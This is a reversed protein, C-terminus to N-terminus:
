PAPRPKSLARLEHLKAFLRALGVNERGDAATMDAVRTDAIAGGLGFFTDESRASSTDVGPRDTTVLPGTGAFAAVDEPSLVLRSWLTEADDLGLSGLEADIDPDDRLSAMTATSPLREVDSGNIVWNYGLPGNWISVNPFVSAVTRVVTRIEDVSARGVNLRLSVVGGGTLRSKALKLREVTPLEEATGSELTASTLLIVDWTEQTGALLKWPNTGHLVLRQDGLVDLNTLDFFPAIEVATGTPDLVDLRELPHALLSSAGNGVGFDLQLVRRASPHLLMPIQANVRDEPDTGTGGPSRGDGRRLIRSQQPDDTVLVLGRATEQWYLLPGYREDFPTDRIAVSALAGTLPSAWLTATAAGLALWGIQRAARSGLAASFLILGPLLLVATEATTLGLARPWSALGGLRRVAGPVIWELQLYATLTACAAAVAALLLLASGEPRRRTAIMGLGTGLLVLVGLIARAQISDATYPALARGVIATYTVLVSGAAFALVAPAIATDGGTSTPPENRSRHQGLAVLGALLVGTTAMWRLSSIGFGAFTLTSSFLAGASGGLVLASLNDGLAGSVAGFLLGALILLPPAAAGVHPLLLGLGALGLALALLTRGVRDMPELDTLFRVRALAGLAVGFLLYGIGLTTSAGQTTPSRTIWLLTPQVWALASAGSAFALCALLVRSSRPM